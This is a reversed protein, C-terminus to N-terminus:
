GILLFRTRDQAEVDLIPFMESRKIGFSGIMKVLLTEPLSLKLLVGFVGSEVECKTEEQERLALWPSNDTVDTERIEHASDRVVAGDAIADRLGILALTKHAFSQFGADIEGELPQVQVTDLGVVHRMVPTARHEESTETKHDLTVRSIVEADVAVPLIM